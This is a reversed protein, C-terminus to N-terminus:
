SDIYIYKHASVSTKNNQTSIDINIIKKNWNCVINMRNTELNLKSTAAHITRSDSLTLKNGM